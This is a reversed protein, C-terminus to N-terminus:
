TSRTASRLTSRRKKRTLGLRVLARQVTAPHVAIELEDRVRRVLEERTADPDEAVMAALQAESETDFKSHRDGGMPHPSVDGSRRQRSVWRDVTAEGVNYRAAITAYTGEGELYAAVVRKRLDMSYPAPMLEGGLAVLDRRQDSTL